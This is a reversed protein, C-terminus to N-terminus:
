ARLGCSLVLRAWRITSFLWPAPLWALVMAGHWAHWAFAEYTAWAGKALQSGTEGTTEFMIAANSM